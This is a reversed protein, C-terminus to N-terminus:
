VASWLFIGAIAVSLGFASRSLARQDWALQTLELILIRIGGLLHVALLLVLLVEASKVFPLESFRLATNLSEAGELALGLVIFHIPLFLALTLGSIRHVVFAKWLPHSRHKMMM